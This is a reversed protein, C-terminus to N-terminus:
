PSLKASIITEFKSFEKKLQKDDLNDDLNKICLNVVQYKNMYEQRQLYKKRKIEALHKNKKEFHGVYVQKDSISFRNITQVIQEARKPNGFCCCSFAKQM